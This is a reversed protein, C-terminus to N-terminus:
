LTKLLKGNYFVDMTSQIELLIWTNLVKWRKLNIGDVKCARFEFSLEDEEEAAQIKNTTTTAVM